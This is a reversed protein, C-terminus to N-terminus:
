FSVMNGGTPNGSPCRPSSPSGSTPAAHPHVDPRSPQDSSWAASGALGPAQAKFGLAYFFPSCWRKQVGHIKPPWIEQCTKKQLISHNKVQDDKYQKPRLHQDLEGVKQIECWSRWGEITPVRCTNLLVQRIETHISLTGAVRLDVLQGSSHLSTVYKATRPCSFFLWWWNQWWTLSRNKKAMQTHLFIHYALLIFFSTFFLPLQRNELWKSTVM